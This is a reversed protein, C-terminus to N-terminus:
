HGLALSKLVYRFEHLVNDTWSAEIKPFGSIEPLVWFTLNLTYGPFGQGEFTRAYGSYKHCAYTKGAATVNESGQRVMNCSTTDHNTITTQFALTDLQSTGVQAPNWRTALGDQNNM